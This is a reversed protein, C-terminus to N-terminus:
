EVGIYHLQKHMDDDITAIFCNCCTDVIFKNATVYATTYYSSSHSIVSLHHGCQEKCRAHIANFIIQKAESPKAYVDELYQTGKTSLLDIYRDWFSKMKKNM